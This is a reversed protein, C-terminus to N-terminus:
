MRYAEYRRGTIREKLLKVAAELDEKNAFCRKPIIRASSTSEYLFIYQNTEMVKYIESYRWNLDSNETGLRIGEGSITYVTEKQALQNSDFQKKGLAKILVPMGFSNAAYLILFVFALVAVMSPSKHVAEGSTIGSSTGGSLVESVLIIIFAIIIMIAMLTFFLQTKKNRKKRAKLYIVNMEGVDDRNLKVKVTIDLNAQEM